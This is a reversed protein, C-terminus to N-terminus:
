VRRVYIYEYPPDLPGFRLPPSRRGVAAPRENDTKEYPWETAFDEIQEAM